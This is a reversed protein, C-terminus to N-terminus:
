GTYGSRPFFGFGNGVQTYCRPRPGPSPSRSPRRGVNVLALFDPRARV